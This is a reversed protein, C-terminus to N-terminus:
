CIRASSRTFETRGMRSMRAARGRRITINPGGQITLADGATDEIALDEITFDNAKILLGQGSEIQGAAVGGPSGAFSLITKDMGKGRLTVHDVMLSLTQNLHIKGEPLDIVSGPKATIFQEQLSKQVDVPKSGCGMTLAWITGVTAALSWAGVGRGRRGMCEGKRVSREAGKEAAIRSRRAALDWMRNAYAGGGSGWRKAGNLGM